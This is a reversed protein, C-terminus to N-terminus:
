RSVARRANWRIFVPQWGNFIRWWEAWKFLKPPRHGEAEIEREVRETGEAFVELHELFPTDNAIVTTEVFERVTMRNTM